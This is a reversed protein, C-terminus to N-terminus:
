GKELKTIADRVSDLADQAQVLAGSMDRSNIRHICEELNTEAAQCDELPTTPEPPGSERMESM